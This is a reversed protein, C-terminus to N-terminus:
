CFVKEGNLKSDEISLHYCITLVFAWAIRGVLMMRERSEAQPRCFYGVQSIFISPVQTGIELVVIKAITNM